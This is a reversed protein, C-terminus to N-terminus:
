LNEYPVCLEHKELTESIDTIMNITDEEKLLTNLM